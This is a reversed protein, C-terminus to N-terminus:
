FCFCRNLIENTQHYLFKHGYKLGALITAEHVQEMYKIMLSFDNKPFAKESPVGLASLCRWAGMDRSDKPNGFHAKFIAQAINWLTHSAGLQFSINRLSHQIYSSPTRLSRLSNFNRCTALDGDFLQLRSFFVEPDLGTQRAISELV